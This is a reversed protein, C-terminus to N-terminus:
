DRLRKLFDILKKEFLHPTFLQYINNSEKKFAREPKDYIDPKFDKLHVSINNDNEFLGWTEKDIWPSFIAFTPVNLAKAMNIAGGENGILAKCHQTIALFQRLNNGFVNFYIASKTKEKCLNLIEEAEQKQNPIYNFLIQGDTQVYITDIVNAMYKPPYTKNKGSGLVGVMYIPKSLNIGFNLLFQQSQKIEIDTLYIKPKLCSAEIGLPKLLQLRNEIALSDSAKKRKVNYNYFFTTYKKYYSIKTKAGSLFTILNSSLKSYVDIVIEYNSSKVKTALKFLQKKSTEAEKTFFVFHDIFPNNQVVPYTHENILYHLQANPFKHRLAEFLVSSTLVDGIM